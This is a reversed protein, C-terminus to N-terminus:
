TFNALALIIASILRDKISEFARQAAETWEFRKGKLVETVPGMLSSFNRVLRRYFSALGPFHRVQQISFPM